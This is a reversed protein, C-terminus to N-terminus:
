SCMKCTNLHDRNICVSAMSAYSYSYRFQMSPPETRTLKLFTESFTDSSSTSLHVTESFTKDNCDSDANNFIHPKTKWVISRYIQFMCCKQFKNAWTTIVHSTFRSAQDQLNNYGTMTCQEQKTWKFTYFQMSSVQIHVYNVVNLTRFKSCKNLELKLSVSFCQDLLQKWLYPSKSSNM